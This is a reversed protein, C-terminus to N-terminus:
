HITYEYLLNIQDDNLNGIMIEDYDTHIYEEGNIIKTTTITVSAIAGVLSEFGMGSDLTGDELYKNGQRILAEKSMEGWRITPYAGQGGGWLNGILYGKADYHKKM